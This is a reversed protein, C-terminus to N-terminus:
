WSAFHFLLVKRDRYRSLRTDWRGETDPLLFDPHMEGVKTGVRVPEALAFATLCLLLALARLLM